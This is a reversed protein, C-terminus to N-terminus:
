QIKKAKNAMFHKKPETQEGKNFQKMKTPSNISELNKIILLHHKRRPSKNQAMPYHNM